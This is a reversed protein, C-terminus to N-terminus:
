IQRELQLLEDLEAMVEERTLHRDEYKHAYYGAVYPKFWESHEMMFIQEMKVKGQIQLHCVQCLAALNWWASNGKNGDLHHVTLVRQRQSYWLGTGPQRYEWIMNPHKAAGLMIAVSAIENHRTLDCRADCPIREKPSEHPHRCRVCRWGALNKTKEALDDWYEPYSSKKM